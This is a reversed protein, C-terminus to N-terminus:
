GFLGLQVGGDIKSKLEKITKELGSFRWEQVLVERLLTFDLSLRTSMFDFEELEPVDMLQILSKSEYAASKGEILKTKLVGKIHDIHAYIDDIGGYTKVLKEAGKAWIGQVGKINDAADGVLALYDVILGPEYGYDLRFRELNTEEDKLGDYVVVDDRLLQKLDKDSSVIRVKMDQVNNTLTGIVDDAEYWPMELSPVGCAETIQKISGMQYKFEDPMKTRNAKYEDFMEKRITRKPSDRAIVFNDPKQKLLEMLMRFFGFIAQVPRGQEDELPPMGYYARFVYWSGDLITLTKKNM